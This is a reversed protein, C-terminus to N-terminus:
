DKAFKKLRSMSGNFLNQDGPLSGGNDYQWFTWTRWGAPLSGASSSYRALRLAHNSAFASSNGTCNKWWHTITYIM